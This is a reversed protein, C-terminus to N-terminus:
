TKPCRFPYCLGNMPFLKNLSMLRSLLSVELLCRDEVITGFISYRFLNCLNLQITLERRVKIRFISISLGLDTLRDNYSMLKFDGRADGRYPKIYSDLIEDRYRM